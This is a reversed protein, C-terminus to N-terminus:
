EPLVSLVISPPFQSLFCVGKQSCRWMILYSTVPCFNSSVTCIVRCLQSKIKGITNDTKLSSQSCIEIDKFKKLTSNSQMINIVYIYCFCSELYFFLFVNFCKFSRNLNSELLSRGIFGKIWKLDCSMTSKLLCELHM